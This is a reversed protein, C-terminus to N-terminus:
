SPIVRYIYPDDQFILKTDSLVVEKQGWLWRLHLKCHPLEIGSSVFSLLKAQRPVDVLKSLGTSYVPTEYRM